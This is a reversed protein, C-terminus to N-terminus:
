KLKMTGSAPNFRPIATPSPDSATPTAHDAGGLPYFPALSVAVLTGKGSHNVTVPIDAFEIAFPDAFLVEYVATGGDAITTSAGPTFPGAGAADTSTLVLVGSNPGPSATKQLYVISPVTVTSHGPIHSFTLAIRTGANSVGAGQTNTPFIGLGTSDLPHGIDQISTFYFGLPPNVLPPANLTDNQWQFFDESNYLVGPVNQAQQIPDATGGNYVYNTGSYTGNTTTFNLNQPRLASAFDETIHVTGPTVVSATFSSPMVFAIDQQPNTISISTSGNVAIEVLLPMESTAALISPNARFNTFRFMRTGTGPPDFPVGFFVIQNDANIRGQFANPRGCAYANVAPDSGSGDCPTLGQVNQTGDYSDGPTGDSITACVGPGSVGNDPAGNNGCNLLAHQTGLNLSNPEDVLVLAESFDVPGAASATVRSTIPTNLTIFFNVVPVVLGAATPTGGTCTLILDGVPEAKGEGRVLPPLGTNTTCNVQAYASLASAAFLAAAPWNLRRFSIM